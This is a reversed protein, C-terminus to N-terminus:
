EGECLMEARESVLDEYADDACVSCENRWEYNEHLEAFFICPKVDSIAGCFRVGPNYYFQARVELVPTV